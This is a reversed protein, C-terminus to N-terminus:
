GRDSRDQNAKRLRAMSQYESPTLGILRKFSSNFTAKSKFGVSESIGELTYQGYQEEDNIRRCAEKIRNNGLLISFSVGYKENIVQSVYTKNSGVLQALQNLSFEKRCIWDSQDM